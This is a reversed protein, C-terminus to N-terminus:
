DKTRGIVEFRVVEKTSGTIKCRDDIRHNVVWLIRNQSTIVWVNEKETASRKQDILFRALKKKKKMGLPYFYDGTKWKRLLLPFTVNRADLCAVTTGKGPEIAGTREVVLRGGPYDITGTNEIIIHHSHENAAPAIILWHRHRIIRFPLGPSQIFSGSESGCLRIVEGVQDATFGYRSILEYILANNRFGLLQKVPVHIEEGKKRCLKELLQGTTLRYLSEIERFRTINNRLNQMVQPYVAAIAPLVEHRFYNRTYRSSANSVDEVHALANAKSFAELEERTFPLLPRRIHEKKAPIGTLGQLGTGRFFHMAVTEANDDAHHATLVYRADSQGTDLLSAFWAYRLTRAAEQVSMKEASAFASTDFRRSFFPVNYKEALQRVFAEDRDSDSGRLQFNCHAIGFTFGAQRCLAALVTSDIGGSVALL